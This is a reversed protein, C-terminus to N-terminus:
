AKLVPLAQFQAFDVSATKWWNQEITRYLRRFDTTFRLNGADLQDLTPFTGYFGGSVRGGMLFHPAAAGHDTGASGNEKVRGASSPIRRWWFTM